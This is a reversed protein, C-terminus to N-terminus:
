SHIKFVLAVKLGRRHTTNVTHGLPEVLHWLQQTVLVRGPKPLWINAICLKRLGKTCLCHLQPGHSLILPFLSIKSSSLIKIKCGLHLPVHIEFHGSMPIWSFITDTYSLTVFRNKKQLHKGQWMINNHMSLEDTDTHSCECFLLPSVSFSSRLQVPGTQCQIWFSNITSEGQQQLSCM